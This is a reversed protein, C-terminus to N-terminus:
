ADSGASRRMSRRAGVLFGQWYQEKESAAGVTSEVLASLTGALPFLLGIADGVMAKGVSEYHKRPELHKLFAEEQATHLAQEVDRKMEAVEARSVGKPRSAIWNRFDALFKNDRVEDVVPHYPGKPSLYNPIKDITIVEALHAHNAGYYHSELGPQFRSNAILELTPDHVKAHILMDIALNSTDANAQIELPGIRLGHSHNDIGMTDFIVQSSVAEQFPTMNISSKFEEDWGRTTAGEIETATLPPLGHEDLFKVYPLERMNAPCLSRTLFVLEDFLLMLGFPSDLIPNPSSRTDAPAAPAQNRYDYGIPTSLGIFARRM